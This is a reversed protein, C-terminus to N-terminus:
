NMFQLIKRKLQRNSRINQTIENFRDMSLGKSEVISRSQNCYNIFVGKAEENLGSMTDPRDCVLNPVSGGNAQAVQSLAVKRITEIQMLVLAYSRLDGDNFTQARASSAFLGDTGIKSLDPVIGGIIGGAVLIGLCFSRSRHFRTTLTHPTTMHVPRVWCAIKILDTIDQKFCEAV